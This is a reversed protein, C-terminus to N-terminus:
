EEIMNEVIDLCCSIFRAPLTLPNIDAGGKTFKVSELKVDEDYGQGFYLIDANIHMSVGLYEDTMIYGDFSGGDGTEGREMNYKKAAGALKGSVTDKGTYKSISNDANSIDKEELKIVRAFLQNLPQTIEYDELQTIWKETLEEDLEVPHVLTIDANEPLELEDDDADCFSGDSLYRFTDTLKGNEYIGWILNEAFCHMIANEEFLTRWRDVSWTRGNSLVKELRQKQSAVITKVQKKLESFEKSAAQSKVPDDKDNPKPMSKVKKNKQNDHISFTFDPMLSVTFTREGYDFIREGCKDFGLDPVIKDELEDVSVELTEAAFKIAGRAATKVVNSPFKKSITDVTLLAISGGNLAINNVVFAALQGRSAGAWLELQKKLRIIQSASAYICYPLTIFKRKTDAGEELWNTYINELAECLDTSNLREAVRDCLRLRCPEDLIMYESLIYKLVDPSAARQMDAFRIGEFCKEDIWSLKKVAAANLNEKCFEETFENSTFAFDKGFKRINDWKRILQTVNLNSDGKLKPLLKELESRLETEYNESIEFSKKRLIKSKSKLANILPEFKKEIDSNYYVELWCATSKIDKLGSLYTYAAEPNEEVAKSITDKNIKISWAYWDGANAYCYISFLADVPIFKLLTKANEEETTRLWFMREKNFITYIQGMINANEDRYAITMLTRIVDFAQECHDALLSLVAVYRDIPNYLRYVKFKIEFGTDEANMLDESKILKIFGPFSIGTKWHKNIGDIMEHIYHPVAKKIAELVSDGCSNKLLIIFAYVACESSFKKEKIIKLTVDTFVSSDEEYLEELAKKYVSDPKHFYNIISAYYYNEKLGLAYLEKKLIEESYYKSFSTYISTYYCIDSAYKIFKKRTEANVNYLRCSIDLRRASALKDIYEYVVPVLKEYKVSDEAIMEALLEIMFHFETEHEMTKSYEKLRKETIYGLIDEGFFSICDCAMDQYPFYGRRVQWGFQEMIDKFSYGLRICVELHAKSYGYAALCGYNSLKSIVYLIRGAMESNEGKMFEKIVSNDFYMNVCRKFELSEPDGEGDSIYKDIKNLAEIGSSTNAYASNRLGGGMVWNKQYAWYEILKAETM